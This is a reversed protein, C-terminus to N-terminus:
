IKEFTYGLRQLEQMTAEDVEDGLEYDTEGGQQFKGIRGLYIKDPNIGREKFIETRDGIGDTSGQSSRYKIGTINGQDDKVWDKFIVSHGSGDNRWIQAIDGPLAEERSIGKGLGFDELAKTSLTESKGKEFGEAGYWTQQFKKLQEPTMEDLLGQEKMAETAAWCTFGSCYTGETAAPLLEYDNVM